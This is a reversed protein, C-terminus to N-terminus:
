SECTRHRGLPVWAHHPRPEVLEEGVSAGSAKPVPWHQYPVVGVRRTDLSLPGVSLSCSWRWVSARPGAYVHTGDERGALPQLVVDSAGLPLQSDM